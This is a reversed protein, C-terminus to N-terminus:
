RANRNIRERVLGAVKSQLRPADLRRGYTSLHAAPTHGMLEAAERVSLGLDVGLRLAFAHRFAYSTLEGPIETKM